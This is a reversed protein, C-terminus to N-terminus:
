GVASNRASMNRSLAAYYSTTQPLAPSEPGTTYNIYTKPNNPNDPTVDQLAQYQGNVDVSTAGIDYAAQTQGPAKDFTVLKGDIYRYTKGLPLATVFAQTNTLYEYVIVIAAVAGLAIIIAWEEDNM